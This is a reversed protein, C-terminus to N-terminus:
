ASSFSLILLVLIIFFHIYMIISLTNLVYIISTINTNACKCNDGYIQNLLLRVNYVFMFNSYIMLISCINNILSNNIEMCNLLYCGFAIMFYKKIEKINSVDVCACNIISNLYYFYGLGTILYIITGYFCLEQKKYNYM